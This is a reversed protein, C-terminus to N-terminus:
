TSPCDPTTPPVLATAGNHAASTQRSACRPPLGSPSSCGFSYALTAGPTACGPKRSTTSPLLPAYRAPGPQSAQVPSPEGSPVASLENNQRKWAMDPKIQHATLDTPTLRRIHTFQHNQAGRALYRRTGAVVVAVEQAPVILAEQEIGALSRLPLHR